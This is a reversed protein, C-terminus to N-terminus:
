EAPDAPPQPNEDEPSTISSPQEATEKSVRQRALGMEIMEEENDPDHVFDLFLTPDNDFKTRIPSPLSAFADNAKQMAILNEHYDTSSTFDGYEGKFQSYHDIIGTKHFKKLINNIDCEAKFSQHARSKDKCHLQVRETPQYNKKIVLTNTQTEM